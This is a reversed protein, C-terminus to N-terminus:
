RSSPPPQGTEGRAGLGSGVLDQQTCLPDASADSGPGDLEDLLSQLYTALQTRYEQEFAQLDFIANELLSKDHNLELIEAHKRTAHQKLSTAKERSQQEVTQATTRADHLMTEVRTRAENIMDEAKAQAQSLLQAGHVRAQNLMTDAEASAAETVQDAREQAWALMLTTQLNHDVGPSSQGTGPSRMPTMVLEPSPLGSNGGTDVPVAPLQQDRQELQHRLDNNEEILRALEVHVRDLFSDVEDEHYGRTGVPAKGFIVHRVEAPTLPM